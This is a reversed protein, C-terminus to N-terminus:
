VIPVEDLTVPFEPIHM